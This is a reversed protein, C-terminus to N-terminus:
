KLGLRKANKKVYELARQGDGPTDGEGPKFEVGTIEKLSWAVDRRIHLWSEWRAAWYSAPPNAATDVDVPEPPELCECLARVVDLRKCKIQGFYRVSAKMVEKDAFQRFESEIDKEGKVYAIKGMAFILAACVRPKERRLTKNRFTKHLLPGAEEGGINALIGAARTQVDEERRSVMAKIEKPKRIGLDSAEGRVEKVDDSTAKYKLAEQALEFFEPNHFALIEDLVTIVESSSKKERAAAYQRQLRKVVAESAASSDPKIEVDDAQAFYVPAPVLPTLLVLVALLFRLPLKM